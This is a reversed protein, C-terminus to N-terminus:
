VLLGPPVRGAEKKTVATVRHAPPNTRRCNPLWEPSRGPLFIFYLNVKNKVWDANPGQGPKAFAVQKGHAGQLTTATM